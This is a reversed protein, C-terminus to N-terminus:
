GFKRLDAGECIETRNRGNTKARYLAFDSCRALKDESDLFPDPLGAIGLSITMTERLGQFSTAAVAERIREASVRASQRETNPLVVMFEEGGFRAATDVERLSNVIVTAVEKLVYDGTQHGYNDNIRKFHDIDLMLLSMPTAYRKSREFEKTLVDYLRRRNYLGTLADTIAMYEVKGLLEELQKNKMRLEDQLAKTRLSAYIRANLELENYPKPLYDDAGIQLGSIKDALEKKITLMIVPIGKTSEELKLWRCVEYGDLGPLIVDLLIIDPRSIKVTKIANVGDQALTVDYGSRLLIEKTAEAQLPDDEVLLVKAKSM